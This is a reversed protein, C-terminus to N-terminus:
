SSCREILLVTFFELKQSDLDSVDIIMSQRALLDDPFGQSCNLAQGFGDIMTQVARKLSELWGAERYQNGGFRMRTLHESLISLTPWNNSGQYCGRAQYLDRLVHGLLYSGGDFLMWVSGVLRTIRDIWGSPTYRAPPQLPNIRLMHVTVWWLMSRDFLAALERHENCSDLLKVCIGQELLQKAILKIITSKGSGTPGFLGAHTGFAPIPICVPGGQLLGDFNNGLAVGQRPLDSKMSFVAGKLAREAIKRNLPELMQRLLDTKRHQALLVLLRGYASDQSVAAEEMVHRLYRWFEKTSM